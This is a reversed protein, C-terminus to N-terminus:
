GVYFEPIDVQTRRAVMDARELKERIVNRFEIKPDPLFEPYIHRYEIIQRKLQDKNRELTSTTAQSSCRLITKTAESFCTICPKKSFISLM